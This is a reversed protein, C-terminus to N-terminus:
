SLGIGIFSIIYTLYFSFLVILSSRNMTLEKSQSVATTMLSLSWIQAIIILIQGELFLFTTTVKTQLWIFFLSLMNPFLAFPVTAILKVPNYKRKYFITNFLEVVLALFIWLGLVGILSFYWFEVEFPYFGILVLNSDISFFLMAGIIILGEFLTRIPESTLYKFVRKPLFLFIIGKLLKQGFSPQEDELERSIKVNSAEIHDKSIIMLNYAVKGLDSLFYKKNDDQVILEKMSNLQHYLSGVKLGFKKRLELFGVKNYDNVFTLIERRIQSGLATYIIEEETPSIKEKNSSLTDLHNNEGVM